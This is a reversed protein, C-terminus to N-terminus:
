RPPKAAGLEGMTLTNVLTAGFVGYIALLLFAPAGTWLPSTIGM